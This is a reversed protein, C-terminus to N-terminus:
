VGGNKTARGTKCERVKGKTVLSLAAVSRSTSLGGARMSFPPWTSSTSAHGHRGSATRRGQSPWSVESSAAWGRAASRCAPRRVPRGASARRGTRHACTRRRRARGRSCASRPAKRRTDWSTARHAGAASCQTRLLLPPTPSLAATLYLLAGPSIPSRPPLSPPKSRISLVDVLGPLSPSSASLFGGGNDFSASANLLFPRFSAHFSRFYDNINESQSRYQQLLKLRMFKALM